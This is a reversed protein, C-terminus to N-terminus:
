SQIIRAIWDDWNRLLNEHQRKAAAALSMAEHETSFLGAAINSTLNELVAVQQELNKIREQNVDIPM